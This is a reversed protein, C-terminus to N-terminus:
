WTENHSSNNEDLDVELVSHNPQMEHKKIIIIHKEVTNPPNCSVGRKAGQQM